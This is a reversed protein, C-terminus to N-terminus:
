ILKKECVNQKDHLNAAFMGLCQVVNLHSQSLQSLDLMWDCVYNSFRFHIVRKRTWMM